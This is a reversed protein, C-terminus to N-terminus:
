ETWIPSGGEQVDFLAFHVDYIGDPINSGDKESIVGQFAIVHPIETKSVTQSNINVAFAFFLLLLKAIVISNKKLVRKM